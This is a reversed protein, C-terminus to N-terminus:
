TRPNKLRAFRDRLGLNTLLPVTVAPTYTEEYDSQDLELPEKSELADTNRFLAVPEPAFFSKFLKLFKLVDAGRWKAGSPPEVRVLPLTPDGEFASLTFFFL